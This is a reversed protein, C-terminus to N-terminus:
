DNTAMFSGYFFTGIKKTFEAERYQEFDTKNTNTEGKGGSVIGCFIM